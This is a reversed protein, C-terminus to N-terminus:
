YAADPKTVRILKANVFEHIGADAQERGYGSAKTGGFPLEPAIGTTHNIYVMGTVIQRAVNIAEKEDKGFVSGGLGFETANALKIAEDINQVVYICLVPGFIEEFYAKMNPTIGTLITPQMFAGERDLRKGGLVLKAGESVALEVQKIVTQAAKESSLPALQTKPDLPDGVVINQYLSKAKEIFQDAVSQLVIIRKPSVCVQGANYLRGLAATKVALDLDADALVIFPDSGGLELTSKKVCSAAASAFSAGAPKSGTLSAGKVRPDTVLESVKSGSIFLNTYVGEPAGAERLIKEMIEACQPVNSAHKLVVTNGAMINAAATRTIQYFPFNWPQVTLLVGISDYTLFAKGHKVSIEKDALLKAGESAYYDFIDACLEVEGVAEGLLKGMEITCLKALSQKRERLIAAAKHLVQARQSFSTKKWSQYASDAKAFLVDIQAMTMEDYIKEVKNTTPNVTKIPSENSM